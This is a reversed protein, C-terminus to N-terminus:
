PFIFTSFEAFNPILTFHFLISNKGCLGIDEQTESSITPVTLYRFHYTFMRWAGDESFCNRLIQPIEKSDNRMIGIMIVYDRTKLLKKHSFHAYITVALKNILLAQWFIGWEAVIFHPTWRKHM